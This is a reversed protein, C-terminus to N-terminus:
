AGSGPPFEETQEGTRIHLAEGVVPVRCDMRVPKRKAHTCTSTEIFLVICCLAHFFCYFFVDSNLRQLLAKNKNDNQGAGVGGGGKIISQFPSFKLSVLIFKKKAFLYFVIDYKIGLCSVYSKSIHLCRELLYDSGGEGCVKGGPGARGAGAGGGGM